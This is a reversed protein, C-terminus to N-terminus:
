VGVNSPFQTSLEGLSLVRSLLKDWIGCDLQTHSLNAEGGASKTKNQKPKM